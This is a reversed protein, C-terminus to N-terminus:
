SSEAIVFSVSRQVSETTSTGLVHRSIWGRYPTTGSLVSPRPPAGFPVGGEQTDPSRDGCSSRRSRAAPALPSRDAGDALPVMALRVSRRMVNGIAM